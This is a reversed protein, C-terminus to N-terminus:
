ALKAKIELRESKLVATIRRASMPWWARNRGSWSSGGVDVSLGKGEVM